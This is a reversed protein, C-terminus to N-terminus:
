TSITTPFFKFDGNSKGDDAEQQLALAHELEVEVEGMTPRENPEINLCRKMIDMFVVLCKPAILRMLIPDIIEDAPFRELFITPNFSQNTFWYIDELMVMKDFITNKYSTCAVEFLVIGFSYVDCKDTFTNTLVCEPAMYGFTGILTDVKIPKPNLKSLKGQLSFGLHSLKPVMSNDLLITQPKIDCHFITRKAGTHLYHLGKAAGICIELRKKWSLPDMDRLRLHDYLSGNLMYEYVIIKEDKQDCFGILSTLNPHHLQCHLEIEKKFKWEDFINRMRKLAIPYDTEGNHKLYGKYAISFSTQGIIRDEDFNNTSNKLDELSFQHCLEEIVTPYQKKSSSKHKSYKALM